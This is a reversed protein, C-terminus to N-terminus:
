SLSRAAGYRAPKSMFMETTEDISPYMVILGNEALGSSTQQFAASIPEILDKLRVKARIEDAYILRPKVPRLDTSM